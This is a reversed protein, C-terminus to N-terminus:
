TNYHLALQTQLDALEVDRRHYGTDEILKAAKITHENAENLKQEAILLRAMELHYDTLHLRMGSPEAIEHVEQLDQHALDFSQISCNFSARILLGFPLYDRRGSNHLDNISQDIWERAVSPKIDQLYYALGLVLKDLGISLKGKEEISINLSYETREIVETIKGQILLLQSYYFNRLSHLQPRHPENKQQLSESEKFFRLAAVTEGSQYLTYAYLAIKSMRLFLTNSYESYEISTKAYIQAEAIKGSYLEIECLNSASNTAEEWNELHKALALNAKTAEAAEKLRGLCRLCFGAWNLINIQSDPTLNAAPTSWLGQFFCAVTSLDDNFAGLQYINYHIKERRIRLWYVENLVRQQFGAKCGHVVAKFLSQMEELTDPFEKKPLAKYYEYLRKHAQQWIEPQQEKLQNGFYERILPHCDFVEVSDQHESLLHHQERLDRIAVKWAKNPIDKTLNPIQAEWLVELVDLELPHDFLGLIQLLKLEPTDALWYSYAQMVKAAHRSDADYEDILEGLTDRRRVDGSLYTRLANGLLHLALAHCNYEQVAQILEVDSGHVQLSQLLKVGDNTELNDLKHSIISPRNKLDHVKIRTTIICLGQSHKLLSKLLQRLARDKLEGRMGNGAQQLPELGDLVLVYHKDKLLDALYEGKLEESPFSTRKAGLKEFLHNFFPSASTQKDESSGQSYFSWALLVDIDKTQDLWHRLLKTKGTGGTAIFQIIRTETDTWAQNLMSLELKRGFFEGEVTYM